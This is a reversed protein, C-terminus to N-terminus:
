EARGAPTASLTATYVFAYLTSVSWPVAITRLIEPTGALTHALSLVGAITLCSIAPPALKRPWAPFSAFPGRWAWELGRKMVLTILGSLAGQVFFVLAMVGAGHDRNAFVAWGGMAIFAIVVHVWTSRMLQAPGATQAM